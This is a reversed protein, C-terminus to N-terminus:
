LYRSCGGTQAMKGGTYRSRCTSVAAVLRHWREGRTGLDVPVSQLWWDTGDKGGMYRSRCTSVAAVLRHWREGRTCLDVPVSQLLCCTHIYTVHCTVGGADRM